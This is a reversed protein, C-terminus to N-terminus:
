LQSLVTLATGTAGAVFAGLSGYFFRDAAEIHERQERDFVRAGEASRNASALDQARAAHMGWMRLWERNFIAMQLQRTYSMSIMNFLLGLAFLLMCLVLGRLPARATYHGLFTLIALIAGGNMLGMQKHRELTIDVISKFAPELTQSQPDDPPVVPANKPDARSEAPPPAAM